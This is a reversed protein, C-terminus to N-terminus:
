SVSALESRWRERQKEREASPERASWRAYLDAAQATAERLRLKPSRDNARLIEHGRLVFPEAESFKGQASLAAGLACQAQGREWRGEPLTSAQLEVCERLYREAEAGRGLGTLAMGLHLLAASLNEDTAPLVERAADVAGRAAAEAEAFHRLDLLARAVQWRSRVVFPHEAGLARIRADLTRRYCDLSSAFRGREREVWGLDALFTLTLNHEPGLTREAIALSERVLPEAERVNGRELRLEALGRIAALTTMHEPGLVTRMGEISKAYLTDAEALKGQSQVTAALNTQLVLVNPHRDGLLKADRELAERFMAEAGSDNGQWRLSWALNNQIESVRPDGDGSLERRLALAERLMPEAAPYDGKSSAVVGLDALTSAVEESREGRGARRLELSRRLYTEAGAYDSEAWRLRGLSHYSEAVDLGSEGFLGTRLELATRLHPEASDLLGLAQYARGITNRVAAEIERSERSADSELESSAKELVERVTVERGQAHEPQVSALMEQLFRNVAGTKAVESRAESEARLAEKEARLARLLGWTTGGLGLLLAVVVVGAAAVAARHRRVFKRLRYSRSPPGALVPEFDLYRQLDEALDRASAYRRDRDKELAKMTIWDLEGRLTGGHEASARESPKVAEAERFARLVEELSTTAVARSDLPLSGALLEYLIVGLSYVDTRTDIDESHAMQEPSMFELTGVISGAMTLMTRDTLSEGTAKAIGFDIIKPSHGGEQFSVLVNSPKLDRHIITKQHAHEVGECVRIFLRVRESIGLKRADCYAHIPIGPVYEMAFYPRGDPTSGADFVRAIAPHDMMALAQREAQFRAVFHSTGMGARILKLAVRRQVPREQEAEWVQGMGGEGLKRILRYNGVVEHPAAEASGFSGAAADPAGGSTSGVHTADGGAPSPETDHPTM